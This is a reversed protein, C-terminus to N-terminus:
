QKGEVQDFINKLVKIDGNLDSPNKVEALVQELVHETVVLVGLNFYYNDSKELFETMSSGKQGSDDAMLKDLSANQEAVKGAYTNRFKKLMGVTPKVSALCKLQHYMGKLRSYDLGMNFLKVSAERLDKQNARPEAKDLIDLKGHATAIQEKAVDLKVNLDKLSKDLNVINPQYTDIDLM